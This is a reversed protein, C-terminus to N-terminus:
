LPQPAPVQRLQGRRGRGSRAFDDGGGDDGGPDTGPDSGPDSGGSDGCSADSSCSGGCGDSGGCADTCEPVCEEFCGSGQPCSGGCGDDGGCSNGWCGPTCSGCDWSV